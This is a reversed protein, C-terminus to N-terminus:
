DEETAELPRYLTLMHGQQKVLTCKCRQCIDEILSKNARIKILEEKSFAQEIEKAVNDSLGNKGVLVSSNLRNAHSRLESIRSSSLEHFNM